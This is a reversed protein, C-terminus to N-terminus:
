CKVRQIKLVQGNLRTDTKGEIEREENMEIQIGDVVTM